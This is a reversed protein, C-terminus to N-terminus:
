VRMWLLIEHYRVVHSGESELGEATSQNLICMQTQRSHLEGNVDMRADPKTVGALGTVSVQLLEAMDQQHCHGGASARPFLGDTKGLAFNKERLEWQVVLVM